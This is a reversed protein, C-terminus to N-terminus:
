TENDTVDETPSSLDDLELDLGADSARRLWEEAESEDGRLACLLAVNFMATPNGAEAAQRFLQEARAPDTDTLLAALENMADPNGAEASRRYWDIAQALEGRLQHLAGLSRMAGPNDKEASQRWWQAAEAIEGRQYLLLGLRFMASPQGVKAAQRYWREAAAADGRAEILEALRNSAYADGDEAARRFWQEAEVLDGRHARLSGLVIAGSHSTDLEPALGFWQEAEEVEGRRMLQLALYYAAERHGSDALPRFLREAVDARDHTWSAQDGVRIAEAPSNRVYEVVSEWTADPIPARETELQDLVFDFVRWGSDQRDLLAVTENIRESAWDLAHDMANPRALESRRHTPVYHPVLTVLVAEPIGTTLGARRWDAAALVCAAGVPHQTAGVKFREFALRGGGVYEALGYRQVADLVGPDHVAEIVRDHEAPSLRTELRVQDFRALVDSGIPRREDTPQLRELGSDRMTGVVRNGLALLRELLGVTLGTATLHEDLENLWIVTSEPIGGSAALEALATSSAPLFLPWDQYNRRILEAAMRSKGAMSHGVILLPRGSALVATAAAERDRQIYGVDVMARSVGLQELSADRVVPLRGARDIQRAQHQLVGSREDARKGRARLQDLVVLGVALLATATSLMWFPAKLQGIVAGAVALLVALALLWGSRDRARRWQIGAM